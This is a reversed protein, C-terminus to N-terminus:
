LLPSFVRAAAIALRSHLPIKQKPDFLTSHEVYEFLIRALQNAVKNDEILLSLEFNLRFSRQDFNSSGVIVVDDDILLAKTHLMYPYQYIRVGAQSLQTINTLKKLFLRYDVKAMPGCELTKIAKLTRQHIRDAHTM